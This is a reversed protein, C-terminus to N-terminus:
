CGIGFKLFGRDDLPSVLRKYFIAQAAGLLSLNVSDISKLNRITFSLILFIRM